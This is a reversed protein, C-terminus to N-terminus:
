GYMCIDNMIDLSLNENQINHIWDPSPHSASSKRLLMLRHRRLERPHAEDRHQVRRLPVAGQLQLRRRRLAPRPQADGGAPRFQRIGRPRHRGHHVQRWALVEGLRGALARPRRRASGSFATGHHPQQEISSSKPKHLSPFHLPSQNTTRLLVASPAAKYQHRRPRGRSPTQPQAM